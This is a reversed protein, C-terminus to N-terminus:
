ISAKARTKRKQTEAASSTVADATLEMHGLHQFLEEFVHLVISPDSRDGGPLHARLPHYLATSTGDLTGVMEHCRSRTEDIRQRLSDIDSEAEFEADRGRDTPRDLGVHEIWFPALECCHTVLAAVSNTAPGHPRRNVTTDDLRDLVRHMGDFAHDMYVCVTKTMLEM